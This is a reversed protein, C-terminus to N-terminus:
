EGSQDEGRVDQKDVENVSINGMLVTFMANQMSVIM